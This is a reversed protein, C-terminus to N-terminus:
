PNLSIPVDQKSKQFMFYVIKTKCYTHLYRFYSTNDFHILMTYYIVEIHLVIM